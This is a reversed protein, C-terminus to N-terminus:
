SDVTNKVEYMTTKMGLFEILIKFINVSPKSYMSCNLYSKTVNEALDLM